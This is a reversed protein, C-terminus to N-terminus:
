EPKCFIPNMSFRPQSSGTSLVQMRGSFRPALSNVVFLLVLVFATVLIATGGFVDPIRFFACLYRATIWALIATLSPYYITSLFWGLFFSFDSGAVLDAFDVMGSAREYRQALIAFTSACIVMVLGVLIWAIVGTRVDGGTAILVSEAKFFVGSGIVIGVVMCIATFLGYKRELKNNEM